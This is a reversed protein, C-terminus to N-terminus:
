KMTNLFRELLMSSIPNEQMQKLMHGPIHDHSDRKKKSEPNFGHNVKLGNQISWQFSKDDEVILNKPGEIYKTVYLTSTALIPKEGMNSFVCGLKMKWLFDDTSHKITRAVLYCDKFTHQAMFRSYITDNDIETEYEKPFKETNITERQSRNCLFQVMDWPHMVQSNILATRINRTRTAKDLIATETASCTPM